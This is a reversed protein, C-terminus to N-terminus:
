KVFKLKKLEKATEADVSAKGDTFHVARQGLYVSATFAGEAYEVEVLKEDSAKASKEVPKETEEAEVVQEEADKKARVM